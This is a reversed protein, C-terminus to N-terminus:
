LHDHESKMSDTEEDHQQASAATTLGGLAALTTAGTLAAGKLFSRRSSGPQSDEPSPTAIEEPTNM